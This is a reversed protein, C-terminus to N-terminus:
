REVESQVQYRAISDYVEEINVVAETPGCTAICGLSRSFGSATERASNRERMQYTHSILRHLCQRLTPLACDRHGDAVLKCIQQNVSPM